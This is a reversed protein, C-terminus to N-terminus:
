KTCDPLLVLLQSEWQVFHVETMHVSLPYAVPYRVSQLLIGKHASAPDIGRTVARKLIPHTNKTNTKM